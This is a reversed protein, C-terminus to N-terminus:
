IYGFRLEGIIKEIVDVEIGISDAIGKRVQYSMFMYQKLFDIDLINSYPYYFSRFSSHNGGLVNNEYFRMYNELREM